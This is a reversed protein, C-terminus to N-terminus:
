RKNKKEECDAACVQGIYLPKPPDTFLAQALNPAMAIYRLDRTEECRLNSENYPPLVCRGKEDYVGLASSMLRKTPPSDAGENLAVVGEAMYVHSDTIFEGKPNEADYFFLAARGDPKFLYVKQYFELQFLLYRIPWQTVKEFDDSTLLDQRRLWGPPVGSPAQYEKEGGHFIWEKNDWPRVEPAATVDKITFRIEQGKHRYRYIIKANTSPKAYVPIQDYRAFTTLIWTEAKAWEMSATLLVVWILGSVLIPRRRRRLPLQAM